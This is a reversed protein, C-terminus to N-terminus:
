KRRKKLAIRKRVSGCENASQEIVKMLDRNIKKGIGTNILLYLNQQNRRPYFMGYILYELMRKDQRCNGLMIIQIQFESTLELDTWFRFGFSGSDKQRWSLTQVYTRLLIEQVLRRLRSCPFESVMENFREEFIEKLNM